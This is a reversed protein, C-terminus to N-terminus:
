VAIHSVPGTVALKSEIDKSQQMMLRLMETNQDNNTQQSSKVQQQRAMQENHKYVYQQQRVRQAEDMVQQEMKSEFEREQQEAHAFSSSLRRAYHSGLAQKIRSNECKECVICPRHSDRVLRWVPSFDTHCSSCRMHSRTQVANEQDPLKGTQIFSVVSELGVLSNFHSGVAWPCIPWQDPPPRPVPVSALSREIQRLFMQKAAEQSTKLRRKAVRVDEEGISGSLQKGDQYVVPQSMQVYNDVQLSRTGDDVRSSLHVQSSRRSQVARPQQTVAVHNVTTAKLPPPPPLGDSNGAALSYTAHTLGGAHVLPPPQVNHHRKRKERLKSVNSRLSNLKAEEELLQEELVQLESDALSNEGDKIGDSVM